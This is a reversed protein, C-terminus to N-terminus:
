WRPRKLAFCSFPTCAKWRMYASTIFMSYLVTISRRVDRVDLPPVGPGAYIATQGKRSFDGALVEDCSETVPM